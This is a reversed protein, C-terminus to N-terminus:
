DDEEREARAKIDKHVAQAIMRGIAQHDINEYHSPKLYNRRLRRAIDDLSEDPLESLTEWVGNDIILTDYLAEIRAEIRWHRERERERQEDLKAQYAAFDEGLSGM